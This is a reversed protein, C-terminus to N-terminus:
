TNSKLVPTRNTALASLDVMFVSGWRRLRIRGNEPDYEFLLKGEQRVEVWAPADPSSTPAGVNM